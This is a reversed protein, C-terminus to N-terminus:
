QRPGHGHPPRMSPRLKALEDASLVQSLKQDTQARLAEMAARQEQLITVVQQARAEDIGARAAIQAATPPAPRAPGQAQAFTAATMAAALVFRFPKM